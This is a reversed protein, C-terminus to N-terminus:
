GSPYARCIWGQGASSIWMLCVQDMEGLGTDVGVEVGGKACREVTAMKWESGKGMRDSQPRRGAGQADSRKRRQKEFARGRAAGEAASGSM